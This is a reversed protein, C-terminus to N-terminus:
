QDRYPPLKPSHRRYGRQDSDLTRPTPPASPIDGKKSTNATPPAPPIDGKKSDLTNATPPAPPIDGIPALQEDVPAEGACWPASLTIGAIKPHYMRDPVLNESADDGAEVGEETWTCHADVLKAETKLKCDSQVQKAFTATYKPNSIWPPLYLDPCQKRLESPISQWKTSIDKCGDEGSMTKLSGYLFEVLARSANETTCRGITKTRWGVNRSTEFWSHVYESDFPSYQSYPGKAKAEKEAAILHDEGKETYHINTKVLPGKVTYRGNPKQKCEKEYRDSQVQNLENPYLKETFVQKSKLYNEIDESTLIGNHEKDVQRFLKCRDPGYPSCYLRMFKRFVPLSPAASQNAGCEAGICFSPKKDLFYRCAGSHCTGLWVLPNTATSGISFVLKDGDVFGVASKDSGVVFRSGHSTRPAARLVGEAKPIYFLPLNDSQETDAGHGNVLVLTGPSYKKAKLQKSVEEPTKDDIYDIHPRPQCEDLLPGLAANLVGQNTARDGGLRGYSVVVVPPAKHQAPRTDAQLCFFHAILSVFLSLPYRIFM